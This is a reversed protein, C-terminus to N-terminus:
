VLLLEVAEEAGCRGIQDSIAEEVLNCNSKIRALVSMHTNADDRAKRTARRAIGQRIRQLHAIAEEGFLKTGAATAPTFDRSM